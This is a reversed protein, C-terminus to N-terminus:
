LLNCCILFLIINFFAKVFNSLYSVNSILHKLWFVAGPANKQFPKVIFCGRPMQKPPPPMMKSFGPVHSDDGAAALWHSLTNKSKYALLLKEQSGRALTLNANWFTFTFRSLTTRSNEINKIIKTKIFVHNDSSPYSPVTFKLWVTNQETHTAKPLRPPIRAGCFFVGRIQSQRRM